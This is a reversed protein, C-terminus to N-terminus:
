EMVPLFLIRIGGAKKEVQIEIPNESAWMPDLEAKAKWKAYHELTGKHLM